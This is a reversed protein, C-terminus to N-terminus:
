KSIIFKLTPAWGNEKKYLELMTKQFNSAKIEAVAEESVDGDIYLITGRVIDINLIEKLFLQVRHMRSALSEGTDVRGEPSYLEIGNGSFLTEAVNTQPDDLLEFPMYNHMGKFEKYYNPWVNYGLKIGIRNRTAIESAKFSLEARDQWSPDTDKLEIAGWSRISM